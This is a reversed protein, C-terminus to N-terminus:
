VGAVCLLYRCRGCDFEFGASSVGVALETPDKMEHSAFTGASPAPSGAPWSYGIESGELGITWVDSPSNRARVNDPTPPTKEGKVLGRDGNHDGESLHRGGAAEGAEDM